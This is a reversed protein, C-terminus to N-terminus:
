PVSIFHRIDRLHGTRSEEFVAEVRMGIRPPRDEDVHLFHQFQTSAGDLSFFGYGYPVPKKQGTEPDIFAFRLITFATLTGGPGVEVWESMTKYCPGCLPRPPVYVKSCGTCRVGFIRKHDRLEAFFRSGFRGVSYRFPQFAEGSHITLFDSRKIRNKAEM